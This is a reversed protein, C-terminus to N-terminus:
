VVTNERLMRMFLMGQEVADDLADHTHSGLGNFWHPPMERKVTDKFPKKLMAMAYSKIDLAQFGFPDAGVFNMFYWHVFMFDFSAPYGVFVPKRDFCKVWDGLRSMADVPTTLGLRTREYLGPHKDWFDRKTIEDMKANPLLELNFKITGQVAPSDLTFAAAGLQLMSNPGPIPGDTEIDVSIYIEKSM